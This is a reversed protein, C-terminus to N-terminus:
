GGKRKKLDEQLQKILDDNNKQAKEQEKPDAMVKDSEEKTQPKDKDETTEAM